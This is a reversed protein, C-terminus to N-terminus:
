FRSCLCKLEFIERLINKLPTFKTAVYFWEMGNALKLPFFNFSFNTLRNDVIANNIIYFVIIGSLM